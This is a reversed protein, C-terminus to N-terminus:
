IHILSLAKYQPTPYADICHNRNIFFLYGDKNEKVRKEYEKWAIIEGRYEIIRTGEGIPKTTFLGKGAGPLRSKRVVLAM